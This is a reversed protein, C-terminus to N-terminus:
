YDVAKLIANLLSFAKCDIAYPFARHIFPVYFGLGWRPSIWNIGYIDNM